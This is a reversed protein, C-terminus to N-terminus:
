KDTSLQLIRVFLDCYKESKAADILQLQQVLLQQNPLPQHDVQRGVMLDEMSVGLAKAIRYLSASGIQKVVGREIKSLYNITMDSLEALQEQTLHARHRQDAINKGLSNNM